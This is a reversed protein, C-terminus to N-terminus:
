SLEVGVAILMMAIPGGIVVAPVLLLGTMCAYGAAVGLRQFRV